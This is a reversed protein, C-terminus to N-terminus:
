FVIVSVVELFVDNVLPGQLPFVYKLLRTHFKYAIMFDVEAKYCCLRFKTPSFAVVVDSAISQCTREESSQACKM